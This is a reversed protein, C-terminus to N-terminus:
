GRWRRRSRSATTRSTRAGRRVPGAHARLRAGRDRGADRAKCFGPVDAYDGADTEGRWAHYAGAIQAIEEDTLSATPATSWRPRAQPRRHVANRRRRDRFQATARRRTAPWSGSASPSRRPTSSSAPCPSWATSWTPRSSRRASRAKASQNRRCALRQGARLRGRRAPALHHIFHQVWAYNANGVPPDGYQWRADDRLREGGWDSVNFPPNALVFDAKCTPTCTASSAHRRAAPRPQGRHRPHRPEHPGAALHHPQVGPRLDLHRRAPRRPGRRVERVARVHRGLRLLPRLRPGQLARADRGAARVVSRPTYFEGGLKGEASAFKGLFYEYVRGLMDKSRSTAARGFGIDAILDILEGSGTSTSRRAPTTRPCCARSRAPQRARDGDM